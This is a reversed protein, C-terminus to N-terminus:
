GKLLYLGADPPIQRAALQEIESEAWEPLVRHQRVTPCEGQDKQRKGARGM